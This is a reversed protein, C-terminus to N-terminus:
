REDMMAWAVLALVGAPISKVLPGLPDTWLQPLWLSAAALYATTTLVMGGLALRATCRVCVLMALLIDLVGGAVVAADAAVSSFGANILLDAAETTRAFGILGSAAWFAALVALILPKLFYLRAYWREQVGAPWRALTERLGGITLDLRQAADASRGEVGAGLQDLAASRMPSRWGLWALGDAVRAALRTFTSPVRVVPAPPLGLWARFAQLVEGLRTNEASTLDCSFRATDAALSRVVAEAVDHVSVTQIVADPRAAPIIFPLAALGRLLASGGYAAPALVMGPRLIIWDLPSAKLVEDAEFKTREFPTERRDVGVASIQIFRRAGAGVCAEALGAVMRAHVAQLNDRPSDQLAGACNVVADAGDLITVWDARGSRRVDVAIWRVDPLRLRAGSVERGVGILEHGEALLRATVYSGILGYAGVVIIRM